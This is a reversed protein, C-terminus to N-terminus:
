GHVALGALTPLGLARTFNGASGGGLPAHDLHLCLQAAVSAAIEYLALTGATPKFLPRVPGDDVQVRLEPDGTDLAHM